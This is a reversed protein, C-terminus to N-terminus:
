SGLSWSMQPSVRKEEFPFGTKTGAACSCSAASLRFRREDQSFFYMKEASQQSFVGKEEGTERGSIGM